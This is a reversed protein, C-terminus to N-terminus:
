KNIRTLMDVMGAKTERRESSISFEENVSNSTKLLGVAHGKEIMKAAHILGSNGCGIVTIKM